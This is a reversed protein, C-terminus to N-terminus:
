GDKPLNNPSGHCLNCTSPNTMNSERHPFSWASTYGSGTTTTGDGSPVSHCEHCDVPYFHSFNNSLTHNGSKSVVLSTITYPRTDGAGSGQATAGTGSPGM